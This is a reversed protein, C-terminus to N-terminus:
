KSMEEVIENYFKAKEKFYSIFSEESKENAIIGSILELVRKETLSYGILKEIMKPEKVNTDKNVSLITVERYLDFRDSGENQIIKFDRYTKM